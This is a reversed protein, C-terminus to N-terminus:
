LAPLMIYAANQLIAWSVAMFDRANKWWGRKVCMEKRLRENEESVTELEGGLKALKEKLDDVNGRM